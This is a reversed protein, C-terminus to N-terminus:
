SIVVKRALVTNHWPEVPLPAGNLYQLLGRDEFPYELCLMYFDTVGFSWMDM